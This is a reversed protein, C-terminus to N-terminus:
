NVRPIPTAAKKRSYLFLNFLVIVLIILQPITTEWSAYIGLTPAYLLYDSSHASLSGTVQLAHISVGVFKFAMYYLLLSAVFFFPRVPIRASLKIIVFGIVALVVLASLIGIALDTMSITAAMGMYFIITEAGERAVALFATFSLSWLAGTALSSGISKEVFQNWAQLNSKKHLWAGITVMFFVAILGTVGEITERSNGTSLNSFVVSLIVALIASVVIGAVSGSWIWKRKDANGSKNLVTLLSVIILIAELGERFLILGADWATYSSATAFPELETKMEALNATAKEWQPPNSLILTPIAVMKAEISSYTAPSKTMVVGEVSPWSTIFTEMKDSAATADQNAIETEVSALLVLLSSITPQESSPNGAAQQVAKGALYNDVATILAQVKEASKKPDPPETNLAIRAGSIKIEMDGYVAANEARVLGEAKYWGTVFSSYSQKAKMLDGETIATMSNQLLPLLAAIQKHAREKPQGGEENSSVYRDTAKALNSIAAKATDPNAKAQALAQEAEALAQTLAQADASTKESNSEWITKMGSVAKTAEEWNNDGTSILADSSLAIMQKLQEPVLPTAVAASLASTWLLMCTCLIFLYRKM